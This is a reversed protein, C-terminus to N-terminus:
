HQTDLRDALTFQRVELVGNLICTRRTTAWVLCCLRCTIGYRGVYVRKPQTEDNREGLNIDGFLLRGAGTKKIMM